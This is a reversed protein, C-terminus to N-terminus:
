AQAKRAAPDVFGMRASIRLAYDRVLPLLTEMFDETMRSSPGSVTLAALVESRHNRLPAAVCRVGVECEEWDVAVGQSRITRLHARFQEPDAITNATYTRLPYRALWGELETDSLHAMLVKGGGTAPAPLRAGVQALMKIMRTSAVQEVYVIEHGELVVINATEGCRTVLEELLPRAEALLDRHALAATGIKFTKLSLRYTGSGADFLVFGSRVLTQALRYATSTNLEVRQAIDTLSMPSSREALAELIRLSKVVAQVSKVSTVGTEAALVPGGRRPPAACAAPCM